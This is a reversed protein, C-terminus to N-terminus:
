HKLPDSDPPTAAPKQAGPTESLWMGIRRLTENAFGEMIMRPYDPNALIQAGRQTNAQLAKLASDLQAVVNPDSGVRWKNAAADLNVSLDAPSPPKAFLGGTLKPLQAMVNAIEDHLEQLQQKQMAAAAPVGEMRAGLMRGYTVSAATALYPLQVAVPVVELVESNLTPHTKLDDIGNRVIEALGPPWSSKLWYDTRPVPPDDAHEQFYGIAFPGILGAAAGLLGSIAASIGLAEAQFNLAAIVAAATGVAAGAAAASAIAAGIGFIAAGVALAAAVVIFFWFWMEAVAAALWKLDSVRVTVTTRPLTVPDYRNGYEDSWTVTMMYGYTRQRLEDSAHYQPKELWRWTKILDVIPTDSPTFRGPRPIAGNFSTETGETDAHELVTVDAHVRAQANAAARCAIRYSTNWDARAPVVRRAWTGVHQERVIEMSFNGNCRSSRTGDITGTSTLRFQRTGFGHYM